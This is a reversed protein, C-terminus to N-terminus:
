NFKNMGENIGHCTITVVADRARMILQPLIKKEEASFGSLVHGTVDVSGESRGIGVRLRPFNDEGFANILSRVGNHGGHGGKMTIKFREFALDIDDHIVLMDECPIKFYRALSLIPPGSRNMFLMPKALIAEIGNIIGRGFLVDFKTKNVPASHSEALKDVVMFGANHRTDSYKDGPNGLGVILYLRKQTM